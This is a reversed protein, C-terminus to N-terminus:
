FLFEASLVAYNLWAFTYVDDVDAGGEVTRYGGCFRWHDGAEYRLELSADEARGPGGALADIDFALHWGDGIRYLWRLNLLPVFGLDTKRATVGEQALQIKADRIKGTFGIWWSSRDGKRFLYRYTARWSNFRYVADTKIGEQFSKGAFDVPSGLKGSGTISLPALLIRLGHRGGPNWTVYARAAPYPGSGIVDVLSFRTGGSNNPIRVENRNQWVVGGEMEVEFPLAPDEQATAGDAGIILMWTISSILISKANKM